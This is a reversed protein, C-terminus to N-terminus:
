DPTRQWTKNIWSKCWKCKSNLSKMENAGMV